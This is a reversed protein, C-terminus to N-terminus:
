HGDVQCQLRFGALTWTDEDTARVECCYIASLTTETGELLELACERM